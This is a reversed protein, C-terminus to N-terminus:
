QHEKSEFIGKKQLANAKEVALGELYRAVSAGNLNLHRSAMFRTFTLGNIMAVADPNGASRNWFAQVKRYTAAEKRAQGMSITANNVMVCRTKM